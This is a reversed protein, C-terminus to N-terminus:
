EAFTVCVGCPDSASFELSGWPKRGFGGNPHVAGGQAKYRAFFDELDRIQFRLMTQDGITRALHAYTPPAGHRFVETFGCTEIWWHLSRELDVAPLVPVAMEFQAAM